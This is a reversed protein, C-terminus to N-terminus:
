EYTESKHKCTIICRDIKANVARLRAILLQLEGTVM